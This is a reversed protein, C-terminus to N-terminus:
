HNPSPGPQLWSGPAGDQDGRHTAPVLDKLGRKHGGLCMQLFSSTFCLWAEPCVSTHLAPTGLLLEVQQGAAGAAGLAQTGKGEPEAGAGELLPRGGEM